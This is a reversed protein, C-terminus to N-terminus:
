AEAIAAISILLGEVRVPLKAGQRAPPDVPFWRLWEENMGAFDSENALVVTASVVQDLSSGAAELIAAINRLCQATQEQITSGALAGTAPDVPATGSVFILGAARTAQSYTPPAAPATTTRIVTRPM